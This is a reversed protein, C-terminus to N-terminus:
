VNEGADPIHKVSGYAKHSMAITIPSACVASQITQDTISSQGSLMYQLCYRILTARKVIIVRFIESFMVLQM